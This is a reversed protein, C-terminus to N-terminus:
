MHRLPIFAKDLMEITQNEELVLRVAEKKLESIYKMKM